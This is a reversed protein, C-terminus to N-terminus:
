VVSKRDPILPATVKLKHRLDTSPASVLAEIQALDMQQELYVLQERQQALESLMSQVGQILAQAEASQVRGAQVAQVVAQTEALQRSDLGAIVGQLIAQESAQFQRLLTAEMQEMRRQLAAQGALLQEEMGGREPPNGSGPFHVVMGRQDLPADGWIFTGANVTGITYSPASRDPTKQSIPPDAQWNLGDDPRLFLAPILWRGAADGGLRATAALAQRAATMAAEVRIGQALGGYFARGFVLADQDDLRQQMAVVGPIGALILSQAMGRWLDGQSHATDCANLVVLWIGQSRLLDALLDGPLLDTRGQEDELLLHGTASVEDWLAHGDFHFIHPRLRQLQSQIQHVQWHPAPVIHLRSSPEAGTLQVLQEVLGAARIPPQDKPAAWAMLARLPSVPRGTHLVPNVVPHPHPIPGALYHILPTAPDLALFNRRERDRLLGWPLAATQADDTIIRLRLGDTGARGVSERWAQWIPPPMVAQTFADGLDALAPADAAVGDALSFPPLTVPQGPAQGAPSGSVGIRLRHSNLRTVKLDFNQM